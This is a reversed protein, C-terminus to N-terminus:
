QDYRTLREEYIDERTWDRSGPATGQAMWQEIFVREREWASPDRRGHLQIIEHQDIARRIVEAETINLIAALQKVRAEQWPKLYVQKRVMAM